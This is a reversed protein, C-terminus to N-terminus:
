TKQKFNHHAGHVVKCHCLYHLFGFDQHFKPKFNM